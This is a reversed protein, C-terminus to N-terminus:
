GNKKDVGKDSKPFIDFAGETNKILKFIEITNNFKSKDSALNNTIKNKEKMEEFKKMPLLYIEDKIKVVTIRKEVFWKSNPLYPYYEKMLDNSIFLADEHELCYALIVNDAAIGAPSEYIKKQLILANYKDVDDIKHRLSADAIIIIKEENIGRKILERVTLKLNNFQFRGKADKSIGCINAGDIVYQKDEFHPYFDLKLIKLVM